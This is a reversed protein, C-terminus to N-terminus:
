QEKRSYNHRITDILAYTILGGLITVFVVISPYRIYSKDSTLGASLFDILKDFYSIKTPM